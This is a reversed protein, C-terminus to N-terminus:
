GHRAEKKEAEVLEAECEQCLEMVENDDPTLPAGCYRCTLISDRSLRYDKKM